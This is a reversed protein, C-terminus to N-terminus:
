PMARRCRCHPLSGLRGPWGYAFVWASDNWAVADPFCSLLLLALMLQHRTVAIDLLKTLLVDVAKNPHSRQVAQDQLSRRMSPLVWCGLDTVTTISSPKLDSGLKCRAAVRGM